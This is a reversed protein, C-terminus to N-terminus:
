KGKVSRQKLWEKIVERDFRKSGGIAIHPITQSAIMEYIKKPSIEIWTSLEKVTLLPALKEENPM